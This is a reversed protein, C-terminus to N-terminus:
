LVGYAVGAMRNMNLKGLIFDRDYDSLLLRSLSRKNETKFSCLEFFLEKGNQRM